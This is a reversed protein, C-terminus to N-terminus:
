RRAGAVTPVAEFYGDLGLRTATRRIAALREYVTSRHLGLARAAESVSLHSVAIAVQRTAPCLAALLKGVDGRLGPGHMRSFEDVPDLAASEPLVESLTLSGDGDEDGVPVDLSQMTREAHMAKTASALTAIRNAIIRDAFTDYSSKTADYRQARRILDARLEQEIDDIDFGPRANSWALRKARIRINRSVRSNPDTLKQLQEM